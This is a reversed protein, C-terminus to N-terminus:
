QLDFYIFGGSEQKEYRQELYRHFPNDAPPIGFTQFRLPQSGHYTTEDAFFPLTNTVLKQNTTVFYRYNRTSNKLIDQLAKPTEIGVKVDSDSYYVCYYDLINLDTLVEEGFRTEQGVSLAFPYALSYADTQSFRRQIIYISQLLFLLIVAVAGASAFPRISPRERIYSLGKFFFWSGGLAFFPTLNYVYYDHVIVVNPFVIGDFCGIVLLMLLYAYQRRDQLAVTRRLRTGIWVLCGGSLMSLIATQYVVLRYMMTQLYDVLVFSVSSDQLNARILGHSILYQVGQEGSVWAAYLIFLVPFVGAIAGMALLMRGTLPRKGLIHFLPIGLILAYAEWSIWLGIFFCGCMLFLDRSAHTEDWRLYLWLTLWKFFHVM